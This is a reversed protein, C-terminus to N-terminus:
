THRRRRSRMCARMDPDFYRSSNCMYVILKERTCCHSLNTDPASPFPPTPPLLVSVCAGRGKTGPLVAVGAAAASREVCGAGGSGGARQFFVQLVCLVNCKYILVLTYQLMLGSTRVGDPACSM